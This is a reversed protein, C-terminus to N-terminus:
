KLGDGQGLHLLEKAKISIAYQSPTMDTMKKFQRSFYHVTKYGLKDAIETINYHEERIMKKAEEIKLFRYYEMVGMGGKEKFVVKLNTSGLKSHKRIEDFTLSHNLNQHLFSVVMRVIDQDSREKAATSLRREPDISTGRRAISILLQELNLKILQECGFRQNIRREFIEIPEDLKSSFAEKAEKIIAALLDKEFDNISVIKNEFRKMAKSRCDFSVIAVNPAIKGNAWINHFENPKHFIMEGNKLKFGQTEAMVEIEGKDVYVLEWFDHREGEFVYDKAFEFYHITFISNIRIEEKLVTKIHGM